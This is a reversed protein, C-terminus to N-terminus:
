KQAILKQAAEIDGKDVDLRDGLNLHREVQQVKYDIPDMTLRRKEDLLSEVEQVLSERGSRTRDLFADQNAKRQARQAEIATLRRKSQSGQQRKLRSRWRTRLTRPPKNQKALKKLLTKIRTTVFKLAKAVEGM